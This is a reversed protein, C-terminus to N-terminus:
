DDNIKSNHMTETSNIASIFFIDTSLGDHAMYTGGKRTMAAEFL